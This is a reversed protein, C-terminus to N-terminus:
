LFVLRGNSFKVGRMGTGAVEGASLVAEIGAIDDQSLPSELARLTKKLHEPKTTGTLCQIDPNKSFVWAYALQSLTIKKEYAIARLERLFVMNKELNEPSFRGFGLIPRAEGDLVADSLLGHSLIGFALVNVGLEQAAPIVEREIDRDILSYEMEVTHIPHVAAARKLTGADVESLGIHGIYGAKVLEALAGVTEEVPIAADIRAPQYLDIYDVGLRKMSYALRAKIHFTSTDLGYMAGSPDSLLGFKVSLFYQDRPFGKLAKGVIMESEGMGYFEGTNFLSIGEDLAAHITQVSEEPNKSVSMGMCGIGIRHRLNYGM